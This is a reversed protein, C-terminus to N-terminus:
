PPRTNMSRRSRLPMVCTINPGSTFGSACVSAPSSRESNQMAIAPVTMERPSFLFGLNGVPSISISARCSWIKERDSVGGNSIESSVSAPSGTRRL